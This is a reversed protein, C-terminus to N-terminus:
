DNPGEVQVKGVFECTSNQMRWGSSHSCNAINVNIDNPHKELQVTSLSVVARCPHDRSPVTQSAYMLTQASWEAWPNIQHDLCDDLKRYPRQDHSVTLALLSKGKPCGFHKGKVPSMAPYFILTKRMVM